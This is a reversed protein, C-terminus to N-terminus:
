PASTHLNEKELLYNIVADWDNHFRNKFDLWEGGFDKAGNAPRDDVLYDGKNLNKHHTIILRKYFVSNKDSGFHRHVWKVKDIWASPNLWPATSLIYMNFHPALKPIAELAGPMPDMMGFIGPYEDLDNEFAKKSAEDIRAIGSQFDVLVNDMDIYLTKKM